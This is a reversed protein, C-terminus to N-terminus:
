TEMSIFLVISNQAMIVLLLLLKMAFLITQKKLKDSKM